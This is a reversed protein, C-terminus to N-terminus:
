LIVKEPFFQISCWMQVRKFWSKSMAKLLPSKLINNEENQDASIRISIDVGIGLMKFKQIASSSAHMKIKSKIRDVRRYNKLFDLVYIKMVSTISYTSSKLVDLISQYVNFNILCTKFNCYHLILDTDSPFHGLDSFLIFALSFNWFHSM